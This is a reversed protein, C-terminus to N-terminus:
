DPDNEGIDPLVRGGGIERGQDLLDLCSTDLGDEALGLEARLQRLRKGLFRAYCGHDGREVVVGKPRSRGIRVEAQHAPVDVVDDRRELLTATTSEM